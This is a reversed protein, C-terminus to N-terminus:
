DKLLLPFNGLKLKSLNERRKNLGVDSILRRDLEKSILSFRLDKCRINNGNNSLTRGLEREIKTNILKLKDSLYLEDWTILNNYSSITKTDSNVYTYTNFNFGIYIEKKIHLNILFRFRVDYISKIHRFILNYYEDLLIKLEGNIKGKKEMEEINSFVFRRIAQMHGQVSWRFEKFESENYWKNENLCVPLSKILGESSLIFNFRSLDFLLSKVPYHIKEPVFFNSKTFGFNKYFYYSELKQNSLLKYDTCNNYIESSMQIFKGISNTYEQIQAYDLYSIVPIIDYSLEKSDTSFKNFNNGLRIYWRDKLINIIKDKGKLDLQKYYPLSILDEYEKCIQDSIDNFGNIKNKIEEESKQFGKILNSSIFRFDNINIKIKSNGLNGPNYYVTYWFPNEEKFTDDLLKPKKNSREFIEINEIINKRLRKNNRQNQSSDNSEDRLRRFSKDSKSSEVIRVEREDLTDINPKDNNIKSLNIKEAKNRKNYWDLIRSLESNRSPASNRSFTNNSSPVSNGSGCPANNNSFPFMMLTKYGKSIIKSGYSNLRISYQSQYVKNRILYGLDLIFQIGRKFLNGNRSRTFLRKYEISSYRNYSSHISNEKKNFINDKLLMLNISIKLENLKNSIINLNLKNNINNLNLKNSIINLNLKNSINNLNFGPFVLVVKELSTFLVLESYIFASFIEEIITLQALINLIYKYKIDLSMIYMVISFILSLTLLMGFFVSIKNYKGSKYQKNRIDIWCLLVAVSLILIIMYINLSLYEKESIETLFYKFVNVIIIFLRISLCMIYIPMIISFLQYMIYWKGKILSSESIKERECLDDIIDNGRKISLALFSLFLNSILFVFLFMFDLKFLLFLSLFLLIFYFM